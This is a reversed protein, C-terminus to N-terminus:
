PASWNVSCFLEIPAADERYVVAKWFEGAPLPIRTEFVVTDLDRRYQDNVKHVVLNLAGHQPNYEGIFRLDDLTFEGSFDYNEDRMEILHFGQQSPSKTACYVHGDAAAAAFGTGPLILLSLLFNVLLYRM